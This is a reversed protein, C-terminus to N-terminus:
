SAANCKINYLFTNVGSIKFVPSSKLRQVEMAIGSYMFSRLFSLTVSDEVSISVGFSLTSYIIGAKTAVYGPIYPMADLAATDAHNIIIGNGRRKGRGEKGM